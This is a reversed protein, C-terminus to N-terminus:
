GALYRSIGQQVIEFYSIGQPRLMAFHAVDTTLIRGVKLREAMAVLSADVFGIGADRYTAIVEMARTLDVPRLIELALTGEEIDELM